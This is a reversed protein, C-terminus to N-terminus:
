RQHSAIPVPREHEGVCAAEDFFNRNFYDRHARGEKADEPWALRRSCPYSEIKAARL